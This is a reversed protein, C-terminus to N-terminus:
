WASAIIARCNKTFYQYTGWTEVKIKRDAGRKLHEEVKALRVLKMTKGRHKPNDEHFANVFVIRNNKELDTDESLSQGMIELVEPLKQLCGLTRAVYWVKVQSLDLYTGPNELATHIESRWVNIGSMQIGLQKGNEMQTKLDDWAMKIAVDSVDIWLTKLGAMAAEVVWQSDYGKGYGVAVVQGGSHYRNWYEKRNTQRFVDKLCCTAFNGFAQNQDEAEAETIRGRESHPIFAFPDEVRKNWLRALKMEQRLSLAVSTEARM